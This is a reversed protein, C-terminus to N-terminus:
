EGRCKLCLGFAYEPEGCVRCKLASEAAAMEGRWSGGSTAPVPFPVVKAAIRQQVDKLARHLQSRPDSRWRDADEPETLWEPVTTTPLGGKWLDYDFIFLSRVEQMLAINDARVVIADVEVSPPGLGIHDLVADQVRAAIASWQRIHVKVPRPIDPLYAEEGDHCLGHDYASQALGPAEREAIKRAIYAVHLSHEAVSYFRCCFGGWRCKLALAHAIDEVDVEEPRPDFPWFRGQKHTMVFNGRRKTREPFKAEEINVVDTAAASATTVLRCLHRLLGAAHHDQPLDNLSEILDHADDDIRQVAERLEEVRSM